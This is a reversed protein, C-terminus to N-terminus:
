AVDSAGGGGIGYCGLGVQCARMEKV